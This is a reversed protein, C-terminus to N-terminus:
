MLLDPTAQSGTLHVGTCGSLAQKVAEEDEVSGQIYEFGSSLQGRAQAPDRVLLRVHYGDAVLQQAVPGGVTGTAGIVLITQGSM